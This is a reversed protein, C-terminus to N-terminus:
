AALIAAEPSDTASAIPHVKQWKKATYHFARDMRCSLRMVWQEERNADQTPVPFYNMEIAFAAVDEGDENLGETTRNNQYRDYLVHGLLNIAEEVQDCENTIKTILASTLLM